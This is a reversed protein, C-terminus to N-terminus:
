RFGTPRWSFTVKEFEPESPPEAPPWQPSARISQITGSASPGEDAARVNSASSRSDSCSRGRDVLADVVASLSQIELGDAASALYRIELSDVASALYPIELSDAASALYRIELGDAVSRRTEVAGSHTPM